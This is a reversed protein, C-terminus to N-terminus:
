QPVAVKMYSFVIEFSDKKEEFKGTPMTLHFHVPSLKMAKSTKLALKEM